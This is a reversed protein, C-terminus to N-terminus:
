FASDGSSQRARRLTSDIINMQLLMTRKASEESEAEEPSEVSRSQSEAVRRSKSGDVREEPLPVCSVVKLM